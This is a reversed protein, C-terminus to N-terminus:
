RLWEPKQCLKHREAKQCPLSQHRVLSQRLTAGAKSVYKMHSAAAKSSAAGTRKTAMPAKLATGKQGSVKAHKGVPRIGADNKRKKMAEKSAKSGPELHPGYSV